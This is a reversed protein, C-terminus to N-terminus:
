SVSVRCENYPPPPSESRERFGTLRLPVMGPLGYVPYPPGGDPLTQRRLPPPTDLESNPPNWLLNTRIEDLRVRRRQRRTQPKKCRLHGCKCVNRLWLFTGVIGVALGVELGLLFAKFAPFEEDFTEFSTLKRKPTTSKTKNAAETLNWIKNIDIDQRDEIQMSIIKEFMKPLKKRCQVEYEINRSKIWDELKLFEATCHWYDNQLKLRKIKKLPQLVDFHLTIM